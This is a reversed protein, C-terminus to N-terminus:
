NAPASVYKCALQLSYPLQSFDIGRAGNRHTITIGSDSVKIIEVEQYRTGDRLSLSSFKKHLIAKRAAKREAEAKKVLAKAATEAEAAEILKRKAEAEDFKRHIELQRAELEEERETAERLEEEYETHQKLIAKKREEQLASDRAESQKDCSTFLCCLVLITLARFM